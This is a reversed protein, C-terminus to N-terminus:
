YFLLAVLQPPEWHGNGTWVCAIYKYNLHYSRRCLTNRKGSFRMSDSIFMNQQTRAETEARGNQGINETCFSSVLMLGCLFMLRYIKLIYKVSETNAELEPSRTHRPDAVQAFPYLMFMRSAHSYWGFVYFSIHDRYKAIRRKGHRHNHEIQTDALARLSCYM